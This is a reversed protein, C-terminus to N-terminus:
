PEFIGKQLQYLNTLYLDPIAISCLFVSSVKGTLLNGGGHTSGICFQTSGSDFASAPIATTNVTKVSNVWIAIEAGPTFRAAIFYWKNLTIVTPNQAIKEDAGTGSLGFTPKTGTIYLRWSQNAAALWVSAFTGAAAGSQFWGGVTLGTLGKYENAVIHAYNTTGNFNLYSLLGQQGQSVTGEMVLNRQQITEMVRNM